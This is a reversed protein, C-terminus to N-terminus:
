VYTNTPQTYSQYTTTETQPITVPAYSQVVTHKNEVMYPNTDVITTEKYNEVPPQSNVYTPTTNVQIPTNRVEVPTAYAQPRVESTFGSRLAQDRHLLGRVSSVLHPDHRYRGEFDALHQDLRNFDFDGSKKYCDSVNDQTGLKLLSM